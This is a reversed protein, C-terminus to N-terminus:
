CQVVLSRIVWNSLTVKIIQTSPAERFDLMRPNKILTMAEMPTNLVWDLM